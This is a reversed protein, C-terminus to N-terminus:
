TSLKHTFRYLIDYGYILNIDLSKVWVQMNVYLVMLLEQNLIFSSIMNQLNNLWLWGNCAHKGFELIIWFIFEIM